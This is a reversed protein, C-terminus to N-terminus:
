PKPRIVQGPIEARSYRPLPKGAFAWQSSTLTAVMAIRADVDDPIRDDTLPEGGLTARRIPWAARARRREDFTSM